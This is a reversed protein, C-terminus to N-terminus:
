TGSFSIINSVSSHPLRLLIKLKGIFDWIFMSRGFLRSSKFGYWFVKMIFSAYSTNDLLITILFILVTM